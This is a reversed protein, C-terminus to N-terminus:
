AEAQENVLVYYLPGLEGTIQSDLPVERYEQNYIARVSFGAEHALRKFDEFFWLRLADKWEHVFQRGKDEGELRAGIHRVKGQLDYHEARWTMKVRTGDREDLWTDSPGWEDKVDNWACTFEVIYVGGRRLSASMTRFHRLIDDDSLCYGLSNIPNFAADFRPNFKLTKMDGFLVRAQGCCGAQEIKEQAYSVMKTSIDYGTAHYGNKAFSVLYMGSGCAPELINKVEFAAYKQFCDIFFEVERSVDRSFAIDYYLPLNYFSTDM